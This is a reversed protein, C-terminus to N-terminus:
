AELRQRADSGDGDSDAGVEDFASAVLKLAAADMVTPAGDARELWTVDKYPRGNRSTKRLWTIRVPFPLDYVKGVESYEWAGVDLGLEALRGQAASYLTINTDDCWIWKSSGDQYCIVQRCTHPNETPVEDRVFADKSM